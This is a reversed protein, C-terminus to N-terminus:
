ERGPAPSHAPALLSLVYRSLHTHASSALNVADNRSLSETTRNDIVGCNGMPFARWRDQRSSDERIHTCDLQLVNNEKMFVSTILCLCWHLTYIQMKLKFHNIKSSFQIAVATLSATVLPNFISISLATPAHVEGYLCHSACQVQGRGWSCGYAFHCALYCVPLFSRCAVCDFPKRELFYQKHVAFWRISM